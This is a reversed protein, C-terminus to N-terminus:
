IHMVNSLFWYFQIFDTFIVLYLSFLKLKREAGNKGIKGLECTAVSLVDWQLNMGFRIEILQEM